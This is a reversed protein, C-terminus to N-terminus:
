LSELCGGMDKLSLFIGNGGWNDVGPIDEKQNKTKLSSAKLFNGDVNDVHVDVDDV